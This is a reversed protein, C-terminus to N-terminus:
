HPRSRASASIRRQIEDERGGERKLSAALARERFDADNVM